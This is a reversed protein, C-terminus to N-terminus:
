LPFYSILFISPTVTVPIIPPELVKCLALLLVAQIIIMHYFAKDKFTDDMYRHVSSVNLSLANQWMIMIFPTNSSARHIYVRNWTRPLKGSKALIKFPRRLCLIKKTGRRLSTASPPYQIVRRGDTRGDTRGSQILKRAVCISWLLIQIFFFVGPWLGHQHGTLDPNFIM